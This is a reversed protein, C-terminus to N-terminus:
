IHLKSEPRDKIYISYLMDAHAWLSMYQRLLSKVKFNFSLDQPEHDEFCKMILMSTATHKVDLITLTSRGRRNHFLNTKNTFQIRLDDMFYTENGLLDSLRQCAIEMKGILHQQLQEDNTIELRVKIEEM